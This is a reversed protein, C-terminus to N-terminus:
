DTKFERAVEARFETNLFDGLKKVAKELVRLGKGGDFIGKKKMSLAIAFAIQRAEAKDKSIGKRKVWAALADIMARGPKVNAARVGYEILPAHPATNYVEAGGKIKKYRWAAKYMGRDVPQPKLNPIIETQIHAVLKVATALMAREAAKEFGKDLWQKVKPHEHIDFKVGSM